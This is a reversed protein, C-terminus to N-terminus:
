RVIGGGGATQLDEPSVTVIDGKQGLARAALLVGNQVGGFFDNQLVGSWVGAALADGCGVRDIIQVAAAPFFKVDGGDAANVGNEGDSMVIYRARTLKALQKLAAAADGDCSFVEAADRRSCFLLDANKVLPLLTKKAAAAGWLLRRFNVDFGVLLGRRRAKEMATQVARANAPSLAATIGTLHIARADLLFNWDWVDAAALAAASNKRDYVIRAPVPPASLQLFFTGLRSSQSNKQQNKGGGAGGGYVAAVDVGCARYTRLVRRGLAGRPLAGSWGCAFGLQALACLVNGEAGGIHADFQAATELTEGLPPSLRLMTEGFGTLDFRAM